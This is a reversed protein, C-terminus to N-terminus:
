AAEGKVQVGAWKELLTLTAAYDLDRHGEETALEYVEEVTELAPLKVRAEKAAELTLLIDKHMLRLPFNPTFDRQLVFPAKYEVVGSHVMTAEILSVLQKPDVGLKTALTLAEAFGEYILAIQLNMSLKTAQGKGTEGMRFIKKGMAAFLPNLRDITAPDGGVMFILTGNAAGIKSGTMPADVYAVGKSRVREAFKVTASPSITSSDAIIMGEALSQEVGEPGFLIKEVAATDSVCLWTVEAGQAAAAPTPAIGAGEVLKGPTRNWVTVEHGAKVLNTAMAHGMIGLGLFAVRM